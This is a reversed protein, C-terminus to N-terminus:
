HGIFRVAFSALVGVIAGCASSAGIMKWHFRELSSVREPIDVMTVKLTEIDSLRSELKTVRGPQGNGVLQTMQMTLVALSAIVQKEFDSVCQEPLYFTPQEM